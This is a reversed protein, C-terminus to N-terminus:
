STTIPQRENTMTWGDNEYSITIQKVKMEDTSNIISDLFSAITQKPTVVGYGMIDMKNDQEPTDAIIGVVKGFKNVVPGGSNGGKVRASILFYDQKGIHSNGEGTIQGTTSKLAVISATESFQVADFGPIPPYGITMIDDLIKWNDFKFAKLGQIDKQKVKLLAIDIFDDTKSAFEDQHFTTWLETPIITLNNIALIKFKKNKMVNHKATIIYKVKNFELLFGTGITTDGNELKVLFPFVSKEFTQRIFPFGDIVFDYVGYQAEEEVFNVTQFRINRPNFDWDGGRDILFGDLLLRKVLMNLNVANTLGENENLFDGFTFIKDMIRDPHFYRLIDTPLGM